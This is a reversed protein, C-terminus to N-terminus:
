RAPKPKPGRKPADKTSDRYAAERRELEEKSVRVVRGVVGEFRRAANEGEDFQPPKRRSDM